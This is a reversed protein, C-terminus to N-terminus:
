HSYCPTSVTGRSSFHSGTADADADVDMDENDDEDIDIGTDQGKSSEDEPISAPNIENSTEKPRLALAGMPYTAMNGANSEEKKPTPSHINLWKDVVKTLLTCAPSYGGNADIYQQRAAVYIEEFTSCNAVGVKIDANVHKYFDEGHNCHRHRCLSRFLAM